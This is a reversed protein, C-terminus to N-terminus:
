EVGELGFLSKLEDIIGKADARTIYVETFDIEDGERDQMWLLAEGDTDLDSDIHLTRTISGYSM